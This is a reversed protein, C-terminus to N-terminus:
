EAAGRAEKPAVDALGQEAPQDARNSIPAISVRELAVRFREDAHMAAVQEFAFLNLAFRFKKDPAGDM